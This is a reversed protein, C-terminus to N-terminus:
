LSKIFKEFKEKTSKAVGTVFREDDGRTIGEPSIYGAKNPDYQDRKLYKM